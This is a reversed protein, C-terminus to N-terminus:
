QSKKKTESDQIYNKVRIFGVLLYIFDKFLSGQIHKTILYGM